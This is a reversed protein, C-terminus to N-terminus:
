SVWDSHELVLYHPECDRCLGILKAVNDHSLKHFLDIERKFDVLVLEDRTHQLAKVLVPGDITDATSIFVEGFM